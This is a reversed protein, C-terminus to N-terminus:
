PCTLVIGLPQQIEVPVTKTEISHSVLFTSVGSRRSPPLCPTVHLLINAVITTTRAILSSFSSFRALPRKYRASKSKWRRWLNDVEASIFQETRRWTWGQYYTRRPRDKRSQSKSREKIFRYIGQSPYQFIGNVPWLVTLNVEFSKKTHPSQPPGGFKRQWWHDTIPIASLSSRFLSIRNEQLRRGTWKLEKDIVM